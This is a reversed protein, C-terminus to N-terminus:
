QEAARLANRAETRVQPHEDEAAAALVSDAGIKAAAMVALVRLDPADSELARELTRVAGAPADAGFQGIGTVADRWMQPNDGDLWMNYYGLAVDVEGLQALARVICTQTTMKTDASRVANVLPEIAARNKSRGLLTAGDCREWENHSQLKELAGDITGQTIQEPRAPVGNMDAEIQRVFEEHAARRAQRIGTTCFYTPLTVAFFGFLLLLARIWAVGAAKPAALYPEFQLSEPQPPPEAPESMAREIFREASPKSLGGAVLSEVIEEPPRGEALQQRVSAKIGGPQTM